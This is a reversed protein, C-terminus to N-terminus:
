RAPISTAADGHIRASMAVDSLGAERALDLLEVVERHPVDPSALLVLRTGPADRAAQRFREQAQERTLEEDDIRLGDARLDVRLSGPEAGDPPPPRSPDSELRPPSPELPAPSEARELAEELADLRRSMADLRQLLADVEAASPSPEGGCGIGLVLSFALGIRRM